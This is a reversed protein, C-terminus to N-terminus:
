TTRWEACMIQLEDDAQQLNMVATIQLMRGGFNIRMKPTIGAVLSSYRIRIRMTLESQQEQNLFFERGSLPEVAAWVTAVPSWTKVMTGYDADRVEVPQEITVRQDLKGARIM